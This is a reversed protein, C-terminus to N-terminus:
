MRDQIVVIQTCSKDGNFAPAFAVSAQRGSLSCKGLVFNQASSSILFLVTTLIDIFCNCLFLIILNLTFLLETNILM